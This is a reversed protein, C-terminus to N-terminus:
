QAAASDLTESHNRFAVVYLSPTERKRHESRYLRGPFLHIRNDHSSGSPEGVSMLTPYWGPYICFPNKPGSTPKGNSELWRWTGGIEVPTNWQDQRSLDFQRADLTAYFMAIGRQLKADKPPGVTPNAPDNPSDCLFTFVYEQTQAFYSIAGMSQGQGSDRCSAFATSSASKPFIPSVRGGM